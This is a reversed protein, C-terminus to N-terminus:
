RLASEVQDHDPAGAVDCGEVADGADTSFVVEVILGTRTTCGARPAHVTQVGWSALFITEVACRGYVNDITALLYCADLDFM